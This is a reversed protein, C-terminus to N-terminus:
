RPLAAAFDAYTPHGTRPAVREAWQRDLFAVADADLAATAATAARVRDSPMFGSYIFYVDSSSALLETYLLARVDELLLTGNYLWATDFAGSLIASNTQHEALSQFLSLELLTAIETSFGYRAPADAAAPRAALAAVVVLAARRM